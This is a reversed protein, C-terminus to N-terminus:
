PAAGATATSDASTAPATLSLEPAGNSTAAATGKGAIGRVVSSLSEGRVGAYMLVAGAAVMLLGVAGM